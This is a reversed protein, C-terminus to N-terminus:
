GILKVRSLREIVHCVHKNKLKNFQASQLLSELHLYFSYVDKIGCCGAYNIYEINNGLPRPETPIVFFRESVIPNNVIKQICFKYSNQPENTVNIYNCTPKEPIYDLNDVFVFPTELSLELIQELINEEKLLIIDYTNESCDNERYPKLLYNTTLINYM